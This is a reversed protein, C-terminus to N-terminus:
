LDDLSTVKKSFMGQVRLTILEFVDRIDDILCYITPIFVLTLMTSLSLGFIVVVALPQYLEAGPGLGLSLPLMGLVTTLTTMFIPKSRLKGALLIADNRDMGRSRLINIFDILIIANNVVIGALMIFGILATISMKLGFVFLGIFVGIVSLPVSFMITFPHILSEFQAAMIMYVLLIAIILAFYLERTSEQMASGMGGIKISYGEPLKYKDLAGTKSGNKLREIVTGLTEGEAITAYVSVLRQNEQRDISSPGFERKINAISGLPVQVGLPSTINVKKLDEVTTYELRKSKVLIDTQKEAERISTAVEGSLSLQVADAIREATLGIDAARTRNIEIIVEPSRGGISIDTEVIGKVKTTIEKIERGIRELMVLDSGGIEITIDGKRSGGELAKIPSIDNVKITAAPIKEELPKRLREIFGKTEVNTNLKMLLRGYAPTVQTAVTEIDGREKLIREAIGVIRDTEALSIGKPLEMIVEFEKQKGEPFFEAGPKLLFSLGFAVTVCVILTVRRRWNTIFFNLIRMYLTLYTGGIFKDLVKSSIDKIRVVIKNGGEKLSEKVDASKLLRAALMPTLTMAVIFSFSLAFVITYSLDKFIQGSLGKVQTLPIFVALTTLTSALVAGGVEQTATIAAQFPKRGEHIHRYINELVVVANDVVMGTALTLGALSFINLGMGVVPFCLFSAIISVPLSLAIVITTRISRLFVFLVLVTLQIADIAGGKVMELSEKIYDAQDFSTEVRVNQHKKSIKARNEAVADSVKVSNGKPEKFISIEVSENIEKEAQKQPNTKEKKAIGEAFVSAMLRAMNRKEKYSERVNSIDKLHIPIGKKVAIVIGEIDSISRFEGVTRVMFETIGSEMRGGRQSINEEKLRDVVEKISIGYAKLRANDIEVHIEKEVGGTVKVSAVGILRELSPKLEEEAFSRLQESTMKGTVNLVVIPQASPDFKEVVPDDVGKPLSGKIQDIKERVDMAAFDMNVGWDFTLVVSSYGEGSTSSIRRVNKVTSLGEEIKKTVQKEIEGPTAGSYGTYVRLTPKSIDPFLDIPLKTLALAGIFMLVLMLMVTTVPRKVFFVTNM